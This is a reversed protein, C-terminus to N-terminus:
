DSWGPLARGIFARSQGQRGGSRPLPEMQEVLSRGLERWAARPSASAPCPAARPRDLVRRLADALSGPEPDCLIALPEDLLQEALGGVNTAVVHRHAALAAAAVGSQSAERYPLVVADAWGLLAGVESEPVWRNEVTVGPLARLAALAASEPGAGVVRVALDGRPGLRRLSEALLDLGKYPLLRGFALLRLTGGEGPCRPPVDYPVPPHRLRILPRGPTGALRQGLLREGVHSSLAAVAVARRCLARQLWMQLPFGDGPHAEADHVLVVFPIGLRRLAAAMMLDLPGAQACVAIDPRLARIRRALGIAAFPASAARLAYGVVGRYTAVPLDCRPPPDGRLIEAGRALSLTAVVGPVAALGEALLTAFRPAGGFRGWQWVLVRM